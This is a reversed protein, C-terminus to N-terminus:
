TSMATRLLQPAAPGTTSGTYRWMLDTPRFREVLAAWERQADSVADAVGQMFVGPAVDVEDDDEDLMPLDFRSVTLLYGSRAFESYGMESLFSHLPDARDLDDLRCDPVVYDASGDFLERLNRDRIGGMAEETDRSVRRGFTTWFYKESM